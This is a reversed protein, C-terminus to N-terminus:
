TDWKCPWEIILEEPRHTDCSIGYIMFNIRVNLEHSDSSFWM